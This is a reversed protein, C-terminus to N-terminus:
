KWFEQVSFTRDTHFIPVCHFSECYHCDDAPKFKCGCLCVSHVGKKVDMDLVDWV